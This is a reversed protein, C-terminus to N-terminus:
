VVQAGGQAQRAKGNIELARAMSSRTSADVRIAGDFRREAVMDSPYPTRETDCTKETVRSSGVRTREFPSRARVSSFVLTHSGFPDILNSFASPNIPANDRCWGKSM